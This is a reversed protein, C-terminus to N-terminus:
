KEALSKLSALGEEFKGGVMSDMSVFLGMLRAVFPSPGYMVHSVRTGSGEPALTFEVMNHAEFPVEFDLKVVIKSSPTSEVIEMRGKGVDKNGSWAYVTGTGLPTGSFERKLQPDMRDWPSWSGWNRFDNILPFIKEAPANIMAAREVRFNDPRTAAVVLLIAIVAILLLVIKKLM